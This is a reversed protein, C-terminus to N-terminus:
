TSLTCSKGLTKVRKSDEYSPQFMLNKDQLKLTNNIEYKLGSIIDVIDRM